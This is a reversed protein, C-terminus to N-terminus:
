PIAWALVVELIVGISGHSAASFGVAVPLANTLHTTGSPQEVTCSIQAAACQPVTSDPQGM